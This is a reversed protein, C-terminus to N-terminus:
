PRAGMLALVEEPRIIPLEKSGLLRQCEDFLERSRKDTIPQEWDRLEALRKRMVTKCDECTVGHVSVTVRHGDRNSHKELRRGRAFGAFGCAVLIPSGRLIPM